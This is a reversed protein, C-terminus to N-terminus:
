GAASRGSGRPEHRSALMLEGAVAPDVGATDSMAGDIPLGALDPSRNM